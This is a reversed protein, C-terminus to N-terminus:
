TIIRTKTNMHVIQVYTHQEMIAKLHRGVMTTQDLATYATMGHLLMYDIYDAKFMIIKM